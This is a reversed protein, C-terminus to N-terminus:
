TKGKGERKAGRIGVKGAPTTNKTKQGETLAAREGVGGVAAKEV